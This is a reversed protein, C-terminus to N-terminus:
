FLFDRELNTKFRTSRSIKYARVFKFFTARM